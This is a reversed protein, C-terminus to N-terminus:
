RRRREKKAMQFLTGMLVLFTTSNKPPLQLHLEKQPPSQHHFCTYTCKSTVKSHVVRAPQPNKRGGLSEVPLIQKIQEEVM